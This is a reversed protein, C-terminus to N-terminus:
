EAADDAAGRGFAGGRIARATALVVAVAVIGAALREAAPQWVVLGHLVVLGLFLLSITAAVVPHGLARPAVARANAGRRRGALLLLPPFVGAFVAVGLVGAAGLVQTFSGVGSALMAGVTAFGLLAPASCILFRGIPTSRVTPGRDTAPLRERVLNFLVTACRLATLGPLAVILLTGLARVDLGAHAELDILVTGRQATLESLPLDTDVVLVWAALLLALAGMGVASGRVFARGDPDHPLVLRASQGLLAHGFFSILAVGILGRWRAVDLTRGGTLPLNAERLQAPDVDPLVLLMFAIVLAVNLTGLLVLVRLGLTARALLAVVAVTLVVLWAFGPLPTSDALTLSLGLASAVLALFFTIAVAAAVVVAAARGLGEEVVGAISASGGRVAASGAVAEAMCVVTVVNLLGVVVIAVAGPVPGVAAAAIPAALFAQPLAVVFVFVFATWFPPLAGVDGRAVSAVWGRRAPLPSPPSQAISM